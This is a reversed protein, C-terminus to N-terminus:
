AALRVTSGAQLETDFLPWGGHPRLIGTTVHLRRSSLANYLGRYSDGNNVLHRLTASPPRKLSYKIFHMLTAMETADFPTNCHVHPWRSLQAATQFHDLLADCMDDAQQKGAAILLGHTHPHMLGDSAVTFEQSRLSGVARKFPIRRMMLRWANTLEDFAAGLDPLEVNPVTTVVPLVIWDPSFYQRTVKKLLPAIRECWRDGWCTPCACVGCYQPSRTRTRVREGCNAM